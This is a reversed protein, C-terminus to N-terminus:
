EESTTAVPKESKIAPKSKEPNIKTFIFNAVIVLAGFMAPVYALTYFKVAANNALGVFTFGLVMYAALFGIIIWNFINFVKKEWEIDNKKVALMFFIIATLCLLFQLLCIVYMIYLFWTQNIGINSGFSIMNFGNEGDILPFALGFFAILILLGTVLYHSNKALKNM